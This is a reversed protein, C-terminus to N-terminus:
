KDKVADIITVFPEVETFTPICDISNREDYKIPRVRVYLKNGIINLNDPLGYAFSPIGSGYYGISVHGWEKGLVKYIGTTDKFEIVPAECETSVEDGTAVVEVLFYNNDINKEKDPENSSDCSSFALLMFSILAFIKIRM